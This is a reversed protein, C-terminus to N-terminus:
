TQRYHLLFLSLFLSLSLIMGQFIIYTEPPKLEKLSLQSNTNGNHSHNSKITMTKDKRQSPHMDTCNYKFLSTLSHFIAM